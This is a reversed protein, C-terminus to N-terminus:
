NCLCDWRGLHLEIAPRTVPCETRKKLKIRLRFALALMPVAHRWVNGLEPAGDGIHREEQNCPMIPTPLQPQRCNRRYQAMGNGLLEEQSYVLTADKQHQRFKHKMM